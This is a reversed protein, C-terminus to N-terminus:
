GVRELQVPVFEFGQLLRSARQPCGNFGLVVQKNLNPAQISPSRM